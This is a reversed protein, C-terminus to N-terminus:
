LVDMSSKVILMWPLVMVTVNGELCDFLNHKDGQCMEGGTALSLPTSQNEHLFFEDVDGERTQSATYLRSFQARDNKLETLRGAAKTEMALNNRPLTNGISKSNSKFREEMFQYYRAKRVSAYVINLDGL